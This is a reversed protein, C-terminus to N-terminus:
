ESYCNQHTITQNKVNVDMECSIKAKLPIQVFYLRLRGNFTSVTDFSVTGKVVDELLHVWDHIIQVGNFEAVANVYSSGWAKVHGEMSTVHGLEKGRYWIAVHLGDFDISFADHNSVMVTTAVSLDVSIHPRTHIRLHKLKLRVIKLDPDSPWLIFLSLSLIGLLLFLTHLNIQCRRNNGPSFYSPLVVYNGFPQPPQHLLHHHHDPPSPPPISSYKSSAM